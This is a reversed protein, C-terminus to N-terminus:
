SLVLVLFFFVLLKQIWCTLGVWRTKKKYPEHPQTKKKNAAIQVWIKKFFLDSLVDDLKGPNWSNHHSSFRSKHKKLWFGQKWDIKKDLIYM